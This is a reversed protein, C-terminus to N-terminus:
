GTLMQMSREYRETLREFADLLEESARALLLRGSAEDARQLGGLLQQWAVGALELSRRIDASSLPAQNLYALSREFEQVTAAASAQAAQGTAGTLLGGLLAQKALRQSLMRQRGCVNIVHLTNLLGAGELSTTLQEAGSLLNDALEDLRGLRSIDSGERLGEKLPEWVGQVTDLLDGFTPKSLSRGLQVLNADVREVSQSLLAASGAPEAGACLLAQLKVIRQSLMRLQGARNVAEAYHAADIVQRSVQGVRQNDRMSVKRLLRFAEDESMQTARMLIGKARDVLKREEFRHTVDELSSRLRQEHRFRAQAVHLVSRLRQVSYGNVVHAHVGAEIARGIREVDPDATFAVVPLPATSGLAQLAQLAAADLTDDWWVLVDPAHRVVDRVVNRRDTAGLVHIGVSTLDAALSSTGAIDASAVLVSIM